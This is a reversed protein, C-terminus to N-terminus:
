PARRVKKPHDTQVMSRAGDPKFTVKHIEDHRNGRSKVYVSAEGTRQDGEEALVVAPRHEGHLDLDINMGPDLGLVGHSTPSRTEFYKSMMPNDRPDPLERSKESRQHPRMGPISFFKM